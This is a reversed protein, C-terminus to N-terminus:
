LRVSVNHSSLLSKLPNHSTISFIFNKLMVPGLASMSRPPPYRDKWIHSGNPFHETLTLSPLLSLAKYQSWDTYPSISDQWPVPLFSRRAAATLEQSLVETGPLPLLFRLHYLCGSLLVSHYSLPAEPASGSMLAILLGPLVM